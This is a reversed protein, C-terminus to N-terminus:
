QKKESLIKLASQLIDELKKDGDGVDIKAITSYAESQGYGLGILGSIADQMLNNSNGDDIINPINFTKDKFVPLITSSRDWIKVPTNKTNKAIKQLISLSIYTPKWTSRAM